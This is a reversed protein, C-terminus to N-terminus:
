LKKSVADMTELLRAQYLMLDHILNTLDANGFAGARANRIISAAKLYEEQLWNMDREPTPEEM